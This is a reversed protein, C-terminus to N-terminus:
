KAPPQSPAESKLQQGRNATSTRPAPAKQVQVQNVVRAAPQLKTKMVWWAGAVAVLGLAIAGGFVLGWPFDSQGIQLPTTETPILEV